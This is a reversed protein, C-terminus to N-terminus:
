LYTPKALSPILVLERLKLGTTLVKKGLKTLYYKYSRAVKKILGHSRLRKILRGIQAGSKEPMAKRLRRNTFGSICHEGGLISRFLDLDDQHFFNFGKLSRGKHRVSRTVKDLRKHGASHDDLAALFDLYRANAAALLEKLVGLSYITKRLPATKMGTTGDRHEVKRYHKFFTVDNITTEIRLILGRKDYMKIAAPGMHHKIRTGEIRTHFDNGAAGQYNGHLKRGLFTAINDAKVAHIACHTLGDYLLALDAKRKFVIDTAYEAQMLSWHYGKAFTRLVPCFSAAWHNLRRHLKKVDLNDALRQAAAFDAIQVFANDAMTFDIGARELDRALANHANFYFQLRFPAWTPVRLYCLGLRQDIFYFYYHLCKGDAPRMFTVHRSKDHWPKFGACSEMASFIQVLGPHAGRRDLIARVLDEKRHAGSRRLFEIKLGAEAAVREANGRIAERLPEAWKTYDFLRFGQRTLYKGLAQSHCIEPLSGIIVVRDFCSIVGEIRDGYREWLADM